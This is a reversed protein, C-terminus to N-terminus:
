VSIERILRNALSVAYEIQTPNIDTSHVQKNRITRLETLSQVFDMTFIGQKIGEEWKYTHGQDLGATDMRNKLTVELQNWLVILHELTAAPAPPIAAVGFLRELLVAAIQRYALLYQEDVSLGTGDHYLKNRIRHYHEIDSDDLGTLRTKAHNWLLALLKPFSNEAEDVDKRSVNVGSKAKPLSMFVRIMTEVANDISIFAIRRDFASNLSVHSDAHRLLEVAGSAWTKQMLSNNIELTTPLCRASPM